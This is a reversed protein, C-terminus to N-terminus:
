LKNLMTVVGERKLILYGLRDNSVGEKLQYSFTLTDNEVATEFYKFIINPHQQLQNAIEYLHTSLIFLSQNIKRLGEIVTTSCKMADQVNTGKFLEDILILWKKGDSIKQITNKIRQVENFFYSEGKIINDNVQINSLLGDLFTCTMKKVPVAMGIHALYAAIGVAKIFTSKGAMNAGTLFLFNTDQQLNFNYAVPHQLLPHRLEEVEFMSNEFEVFAPFNFNYQAIAKTLSLYADLENYVQILEQAYDKFHYKLFYVVNIQLYTPVDEISDFEVVNLLLPKNVLVNIKDAYVNLKHANTNALLQAIKKIGKFFHLFHTLSYKLLSYDTRNFIKYFFAEVSTNHSKLGSFSTEYFKEIVMITGNTITDPWKNQISTLAQLLHQTQHIANITTLPHTLLYHLYIKGGDTTTFNLYGLLSQQEDTHVIGLDTLTVKDVLM